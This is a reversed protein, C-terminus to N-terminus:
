EYRLAEVPDLKSAKAAPAVGFVIGVLASVGFALIISWLSFANASILKGVGMTGLIGLIVGIAGGVLSLFVSEVLFQTLIDRNTAGVSKRIGIERTRETVSVLMINMIGIGGVLLSIAAIGGLAITLVQLISSITSLLTGQNFVSFDDEKLTKLLMTKVRFKAEDARDKDSFKVMINQLNEIDFIEQATTIPIYVARDMEGGAIGSGMSELVGIVKFRTDTIIIEKDLPELNGYLKSAVEPGIVAVKRSAYMESNTYFRGEKVTLSVFNTIDPSAGGVTIRTQNNRYKAMGPIEIYGIADEIPMGLSKIDDVYSNKLKSGSYNPPAGFSVGEGDGGMRGPMVYLVNAGISEFQKTIYNKLGTGVSVLTIVAFVGIIIGLMTLFSRTKNRKIASTALKVTELVEM